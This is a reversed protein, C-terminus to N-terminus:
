LFMVSNLYYKEIMDFLSDFKKNYILFKFIKNNINQKKSDCICLHSRICTNTILFIFNEYKFQISLNKNTNIYKISKFIKNLNTIKEKELNNLKYNMNLNNYINLFIKYESNSLELLKNNSGILNNFIYNVKKIDLSNPPPIELNIIM